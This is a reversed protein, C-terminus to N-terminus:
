GLIQKLTHFRTRVVQCGFAASGEAPTDHIYDGKGYCGATETINGHSEFTHFLSMWHGVEHVLTIGENYPSGSAGPLTAPDLVVGDLKFTRASAM